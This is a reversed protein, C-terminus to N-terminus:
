AARRSLPRQITHRFRGRPRRVARRFLDIDSQAHRGHAPRRGGHHFTWGCSQRLRCFHHAVLTAGDVPHLARRRHDRHRQAGREGQDHRVGRGGAAGARDPAAPRSIQRFFRPGQGSPPHRRKGASGARAGLLDLVARITLFRLLEDPKAASGQVLERWSFSAPQGANVKELTDAALTMPWTMADLTIRGGQVGLLGFQLAQLVGRLSPDGALVQILRTAQTLMTMRAALDKSNLFLLGNQAFFPGGAPDEISVFMEKQQSLRQVLAATAEDVLEPTPADIVAVISQFHPFAKELAAERERWPIHGSILQAMNTTMKFHTAAYWSSVIALLIGAAIVPWAYQWCFAIARVVFATITKM